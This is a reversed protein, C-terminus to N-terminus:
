PQNAALEDEVVQLFHKGDDVSWCFAIGYGVIRPEEPPWFSAKQVNAIGVADLVVDVLPAIRLVYIQYDHAIAFLYQANTVLPHTGNQNADGLQDNVSQTGPDV